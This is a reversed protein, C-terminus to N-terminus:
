FFQKSTSFFTRFYEGLLFIRSKIMITSQKKKFLNHIEIQMQTKSKM